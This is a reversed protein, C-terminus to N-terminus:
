FRRFTDLHQLEASGLSGCTRYADFFPTANRPCGLYTVASAIDYLVHRRQSDTWDVLGTIGSADDHRFAEPAPALNVLDPETPDPEARIASIATALWPHADVGPADLTLWPFYMSNGPPSAPAGLTYGPSHTPTGASNRTPRAM